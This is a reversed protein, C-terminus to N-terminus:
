RVSACTLIVSWAMQDPYSGVGVNCVYDWGAMIVVLRTHATTARHQADSHKLVRAIRAAAAAGVALRRSHLRSRDGRTGGRPVEQPRPRCGTEGDFVPTMELRM